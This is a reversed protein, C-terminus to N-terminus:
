GIKYCQGTTFFTVDIPSIYEDWEIDYFIEEPEEYKCKTCIGKDFKHDRWVTYSIQAIDQQCQDCIVDIWHKEYHQTEIRMYGNWPKDYIIVEEMHINEHNCRRIFGCKCTANEDFVHNDRVKDGRVFEVGCDACKFSTVEIVNHGQEDFEGKIVASIKNETIVIPHECEVEAVCVVTLLIALCILAFFVKKM